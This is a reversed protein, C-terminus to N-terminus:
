IHILSLRKGQPVIVFQNVLNENTNRQIDCGHVEINRYIKKISEYVTTFGPCGIATILIKM